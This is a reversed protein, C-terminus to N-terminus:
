LISAALGGVLKIKFREISDYRGVGIRPISFLSDDKTWPRPHTGVACRFGHKAVVSIVVDNHDGNPYCFFEPLVGTWAKMLQKCRRISEDVQAESLQTLINHCHSHAGLTVFRSRAVARVHSESFPALTYHAGSTPPLQSVINDVVQQRSDPDLTKLDSLLREIENWNRAGKHRNIEYRGLRADRLDVTILRNGQVAMILRDYWYPTQSEIAGTALFITVPVRMSEVIPLLVDHNGRSGDDFTLVAMPKETDGAQVRDIAEGLSVIDFVRRLYEVQEIFSSRTVVTWAEIDDDDEAIEHYMLVLVKRRFRERLKRELLPNYSALKYPIRRFPPDPEPSALSASANVTVSAPIQQHIQRM